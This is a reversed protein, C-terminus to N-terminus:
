GGLKIMEIKTCYGVQYGWDSNLTAHREESFRDTRRGWVSRIFETLDDDAAGQRLLTKLDCGHESFLCTILKGRATLRGRAPPAFFSALPPLCVSTLRRPVDM